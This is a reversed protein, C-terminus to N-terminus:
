AGVGKDKFEEQHSRLLFQRRMQRRALYILVVFIASSTFVLTLILQNSSEIQDTMYKLFGRNFDFDEDYEPAVYTLSVPEQDFLVEGELTNSFVHDGVYLSNSLSWVSRLPVPSALYDVMQERLTALDTDIDLYVANTYTNVYLNNGATYAPAIVYHGDAYAPNRDSLEYEDGSQFLLVTRVSRLVDLGEQTFLYSEPAALALPYVGYQVYSEYALATRERMEEVNTEALRALPTRMVISAGRSQAYRLYDCFQQMAPYHANDYIPMVNITYPVNLEIMMQTIAMLKEVSEFPYVQDLVLYSAYAPPSDKYPWLWDTVIDALIARMSDQEGDFYAIATVNDQTFALPVPEGALTGIEGGMAKDWKTPLTMESEGIMLGVQQTDFFTYRAVFAGKVSQTGGLLQEMGGQGVLLVPIRADLLREALAQDLSATPAVYVVIASYGDFSVDAVGRTKYFSHNMYTLTEMLARVSEDTQAQVGEECLLLIEPQYGLSAVVESLEEEPQGEEQGLLDAASPQTGDAVSPQTDDAVGPQTDDAVSPQIADPVSPAVANAVVPAFFVALFLLGASLLACLRLGWHGVADKLAGKYTM